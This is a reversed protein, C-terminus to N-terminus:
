LVSYKQVLHFALTHKAYLHRHRLTVKRLARAAMCRSTMHSEGALLERALWDVRDLYVEAHLQRM